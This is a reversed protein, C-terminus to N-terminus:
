SMFMDDTVFELVPILQKGLTNEWQLFYGEKIDYM